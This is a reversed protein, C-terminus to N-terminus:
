TRWAAAPKISIGGTDFTVGKGIFAIPKESAKGGKWEFIVIRAEHESGQAVGLLANMGLKKMQAPTMVTVKLGLKALPKMRRAFEDPYLVNPPENVLDRALHVGEAVAELGSFRQRAQKAEATLIAVSGLPKTESKKSKYGLFSYVRLKLGSGILAADEGPTGAGLPGDLAIAATEAKQAQLVGAIAGGLMELDLPRLNAPTGLGFLTVRDLGGGPAVLDLTSDRKGTFGAAKMARSIQGGTKQDATAALGALGTGEPVLLILTGGKPLAPTGFTVNM